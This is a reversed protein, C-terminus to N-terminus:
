AAVTAEVGLASRGRRKLLESEEPSFLMATFDVCLALQAEAVVRQAPDPGRLEKLVDENYRKLHACLAEQTDKQKAGFSAAAAYHRCGTVLRVYRRALEQKEPDVPRSFDATRGGGKQMPLGSAFEKPAREMFEEMMTGVAQRDKLLRQGWEGDRRIEIEKVVASSLEGFSRVDEILKEADFQPQRIARITEQFGDMRSILIEGVLGMDTQAILTDQHQRSINMPVKLAEWPRVLRNMIIAAVYPAADPRKLILSDYVARLDWLLREDLSAVPRPMLEHIQQVFEGAPLLVAMELADAIVLDSTLVSRAAKKAADDKLSTSIAEAAAARFEAARIAVDVFQRGLIMAKAEIMYAACEAPILVQSLWQWVPLVSQRAIVAKQKRSRPANTLIDQFPMCFLRLPTPMREPNDSQLAPRLGTLIDAHPLVTGEMLRDVEVARALRAAMSGPLSGLLAKLLGTKDSSLM